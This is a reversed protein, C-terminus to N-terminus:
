LDLLWRKCNLLLLFKGVTLLDPEKGETEDVNKALEMSKELLFQSGYVKALETLIGM